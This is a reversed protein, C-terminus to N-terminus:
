LGVYRGGARMGLSVCSNRAIEGIAKFSSNSSLHLRAGQKKHAFNVLALETKAMEILKANFTKIHLTAIHTM